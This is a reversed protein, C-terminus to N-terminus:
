EQERYLKCAPGAASKEFVVYMKFIGPSVQGFYCAKAERGYQELVVEAARISGRDSLIPSSQVDNGFAEEGYAAPDKANPM